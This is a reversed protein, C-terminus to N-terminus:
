EVTQQDDPQGDVNFQHDANAQGDNKVQEHNNRTNDAIITLTTPLTLPINRHPFALSPTEIIRTASLHQPQSNMSRAPETSPPKWTQAM